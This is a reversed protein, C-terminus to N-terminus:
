IIVIKMLRRLWEPAAPTATQKRRGLMGGRPLAWRKWPASSSSKAGTPSSKTPNCTKHSRHLLPRPLDRRTKGSRRREFIHPIRALLPVKPRRANTTPRTTAARPQPSLNGHHIRGNKAEVQLLSLDQHESFANSRQRMPLPQKAAAEPSDRLWSTEGLASILKKKHSEDVRITRGRIKAMYQKLTINTKRTPSDFRTFYASSIINQITDRKENNILITSRMLQVADASINNWTKPAFCMFYVRKPDQLTGLRHPRHTMESAETEDLVEQTLIEQSNQDTTLDFCKHQKTVWDAEVKGNDEHRSIKYPMQRSLVIYTIIGFSYIDCQSTHFHKQESRLDVHLPRYIKSGFDGSFRDTINRFRECGGLDTIRAAVYRGAETNGTVFSNVLINEPKLDRHTININHLFRIGKAIQYLIACNEINDCNTQVQPSSLFDFLDQDGIPQIMYAFGSEHFDPQMWFTPFM